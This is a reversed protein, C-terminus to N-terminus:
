QNEELKRLDVFDLKIKYIPNHGGTMKVKTDSNCHKLKYPYENPNKGYHYKEMTDSSVSLMYNNTFWEVKELSIYPPFINIIEEKQDVRTPNTCKTVIWVKELDNQIM